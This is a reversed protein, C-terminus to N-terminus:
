DRVRDLTRKKEVLRGVALGRPEGEDWGEEGLVGVDDSARPAEYVRKIEAAKHWLCLQASSMPKFRVLLMRAKSERCAPLNKNLAM